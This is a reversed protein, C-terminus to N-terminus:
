RAPLFMQFSGTRFPRSVNMDQDSAIMIYLTFDVPKKLFREQDKRVLSITKKSPSVIKFKGLKEVPKDADVM